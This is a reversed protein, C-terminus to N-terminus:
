IKPITINLPYFVVGGSSLSASSVYMNITTGVPLTWSVGTSGTSLQNGEYDKLAAFTASGSVVTFGSFAGSISQTDRLITGTINFNTNAM